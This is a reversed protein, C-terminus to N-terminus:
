KITVIEFNDVESMIVTVNGDNDINLILGADETDINLKQTEIKEDVEDLTACNEFIHAASIVSEDDEDLDKTIVIIKNSM